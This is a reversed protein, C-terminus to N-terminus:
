SAMNAYGLHQRDLLVCNMTKEEEIKNKKKKKKKEKQFGATHLSHNSGPACQL